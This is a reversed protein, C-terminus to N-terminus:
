KNRTFLSGSVRKEENIVNVVVDKIKKAFEKTNTPDEEGSGGASQVSGEGKKDINITINVEGVDAGDRASMGGSGSSGGVSGGNAYNGMNIADLTDKGLAAATESGVIYEGGSLLANPKSAGFLGGNMMELVDGGASPDDVASTSGANPKSAILNSSTGGGFLGGNMNRSADLLSRGYATPALGYQKFGFFNGTEVKQTAGTINRISTGKNFSGAGLEGLRLNETAKAGFFSGGQAVNNLGAGIGAFAANIVAGRVANKLAQKREEKARRNEEVVREEEGVQARYLDFAQAQAEKLARAAPSDRRRGFATLRASQDELNISAGSGSYLISDTAGSTVGQQSFALLNEKGVIAGAGRQGPVFFDTNRATALRKEYQAGGVMHGKPDAWFSGQRVNSAGQVYGGVNYGAMGGYNLKNLFGLGYKQVASKKIVYEGGTLMAPIDDRVGSGGFVPGGANKGTASSFLNSFFNGFGGSTAGSVINKATAKAIEDMLANGFDLAIQGFVQGLSDYTGRALNGMANTLSNELNTALRDPVDEVMNAVEQQRRKNSVQLATMNKEEKIRAMTLDYEKQTLTGRTTAIELQAEANALDEKNAVSNDATYRAQAENKANTLDAIERASQVLKENAEIEKIRAEADRRGQPGMVDNLSNQLTLREIGQTVDTLARTKEAERRIEAYKQSISQLADARNAEVEAIDKNVELNRKSNTVQNNVSEEQLKFEAIIQKQIDLNDIGNETLLKKLSEEDKSFKLGEQISTLQDESIGKLKSNNVIAAAAAAQAKAEADRKLNNNALTLEKEKINFELEVRKLNTLDSQTKLKKQLGAISDGTISGTGGFTANVFATNSARNTAGQIRASAQAGTLYKGTSFAQTRQEMESQDPVSNALAAILNERFEMVIALIDEKDNGGKTVEHNVANIATSLANRQAMLVSKASDETIPSGQNSFAQMVENTSAFMNQSVGERFLNSVENKQKKGGIVMKGGTFIDNIRDTNTGKLSAEIIKIGRVTDADIKADEGLVTQVSAQDRFYQKGAQLNSLVGQGERDRQLEASTKGFEQAAKEAETAVLGFMRGVHKFIGEGTLAKIGANLATFGIAIPGTLKALTGFLRVVGGIKGLGPIAKAFKMGAAKAGRGGVGPNIGVLSLTLLTNITDTAVKGFKSMIGDASGVSNSLGAIVSQLIFFKGISAETSTAQKENAKVIKDVSKQLSSSMPVNILSKSFNPIRGTPEDRTNTVALGQPNRSNRLKGSQNIRVQNIPVGSSIERNIADGLPTYGGAAMGLVKKMKGFMSKRMDDSNRIKAEIYQADSPIDFVNRIGGSGVYDFTANPDRVNDKLARSGKIATIATEFIAGSLSSVAGENAIRSISSAKPKGGSIAKAQQAAMDFAFAKTAEDLMEDNRVGRQISKIDKFGATTYALGKVSGKKGITIDRPNFNPSIMAFMAPDNILSLGASKKSSGKLAASTTGFDKAGYHTGDIKVTNGAKLRGIQRSNLSDLSMKAFNPIYGGSANIKRAGAPLGVASVMNQNFIADGGGSYNPVYYESTNAIMTGRKGGGFAFNPISVVKAGAHAGGVGSKVDRAEAAVYGGAGRSVGGEGGRYGRGYIGPTVTAAAKQVRSLAAAQQNYIKLLLQEQAIKNGELALIERQINENQLLTQLISQQLAGQQAAAKNIGLIQKLSDVGFKTLDKFLKLFIATILPLGVTTLTGGIGKVIGQAFKGGFNEGQLLDNLSNVAGAIAGVIDKAADTFGLEGILSSLKQSGVTLNNILAELTQNLAQNKRDLSGAAGASVNLAKAFQSQGSNLDEVLSILIDRQRVGAVKQILEGAEESRLGLNNLVAALDNFLPIADRVEGQANLVGIGVDQLAKLTDTRGLRAFITKFANGIVAGGRQTREQVTTVVALLEDFSVGAVRASASARELGNILDETSVAFKTDVESLKDAIQAVNLGAGEFGKIAATLGAVAQQSDIGAVRVLKLATEVRSLSEEVSLGQRALELAGDAVQDFSTATNQAVRFIGNGFQTLEKQTGGLITNIKAFTAEVKITNSVLSGFADSLRNIVAVSAGFAIVRANSAELSKQFESAQGTIKGLPRSLKEISRAGNGFNVGKAQSQIRALASEVKKADVPTFEVGVRAKAM